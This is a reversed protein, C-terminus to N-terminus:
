PCNRISYICTNEHHSSISRVWKQDNHMSIFTSHRFGYVAQDKNELLFLLYLKCYDQILVCSAIFIDHCDLFLTYDVGLVFSVGLEDKLLQLKQLESKDTGDLHRVQQALLGGSNHLQLVLVPFNKLRSRSSDSYECPDLIRSKRDGELQVLLMIIRFTKCFIGGQNVTPVPCL